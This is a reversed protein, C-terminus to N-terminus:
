DTLGLERQRKKSLKAGILLRADELLEELLAAPLADERQVQVWEARALYPAPIVGPQRSLQAFAEPSLKLSFPVEGSVEFMAFMKGGISFVLHHDWKVDETVGELSRCHTALREVLSQKRASM